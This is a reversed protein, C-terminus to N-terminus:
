LIKICDEKGDILRVIRAKEWPKRYTKAWAEAADKSCSSLDHSSDKVDFGLRDKAWFEVRWPTYSLILEKYM